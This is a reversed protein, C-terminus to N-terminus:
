KISFICGTFSGGVGIGLLFGLDYLHGINNIAYIAIDDSFLSGIFSFPTIVGHWLGFWFGYTKAIDVCKEIAVVDACNTLIMIISTAILLYIINKKM